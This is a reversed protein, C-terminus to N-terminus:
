ASASSAAADAGSPNELDPEGAAKTGGSASKRPANLLGFVWGSVALFLDDYTVAYRALTDVDTKEQGDPVVEVCQIAAIRQCTDETLRIARVEGAEDEVPAVALRPAFKENAAAEPLVYDRVLETARAQVDLQFPAENLVRATLTWEVGPFQPDTFTKTEVHPAPRKLNNPDVLPM